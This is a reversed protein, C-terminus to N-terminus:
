MWLKRGRSRYQIAEALHDPEITDQGALDAITYTVQLIHEYARDATPGLLWLPIGPQATGLSGLRGIAQELM